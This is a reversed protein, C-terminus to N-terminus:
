DPEVDYYFLFEERWKRLRDRDEDSIGYDVRPAGESLIRSRSIRYAEREYHQAGARDFITGEEVFVGTIVGFEWLDDPILPTSRDVGKIYLENFRRRIEAKYSSTTPSQELIGKLKQEVLQRHESIARSSQRDVSSEVGAEYIEDLHYFDDFNDLTLRKKPIDNSPLGMILDKLQFTLQMEPSFQSM